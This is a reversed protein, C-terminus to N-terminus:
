RLRGHKLEELISKLTDNISVLMFCRGCVNTDGSEETGRINTQHIKYPGILSELDTGCHACKM